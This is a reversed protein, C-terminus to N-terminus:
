SPVASGSREKWRHRRHRSGGPLGADTLRHKTSPVLPSLSNPHPPQPRECWELSPLPSPPLILDIERSHPAQLGCVWDLSYVHSPPSSGEKTFGSVSERYGLVKKSPSRDGMGATHDPPLVGISLPCTVHVPKIGDGTHWLEQWRRERWLFFILVFSGLGVNLM